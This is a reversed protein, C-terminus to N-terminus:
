VNVTDALLRAPPPGSEDEELETVGLAVWVMVNAFGPTCFKPVEGVNVAVESEPKVGTNLEAVVLTQVIVLPPARLKKLAPVQLM